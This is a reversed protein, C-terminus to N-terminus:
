GKSNCQLKEIKIRIVGSESRGGNAQSRGDNWVCVDDAPLYDVNIEAITNKAVKDIEGNTM